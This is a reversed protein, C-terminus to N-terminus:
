EYFVMSYEKHKEFYIFYADLVKVESVEKKVEKLLGEYSV